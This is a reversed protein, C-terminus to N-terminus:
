IAVGGSRRSSVGILSTNATSSMALARLRATSNPPVMFATSRSRSYSMRGHALLNKKYLSPTFTRMVRPVALEDGAELPSQPRLVVNAIRGHGVFGVRSVGSPSRREFNLESREFVTRKQDPM